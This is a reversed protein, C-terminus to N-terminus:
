ALQAAERTLGVPRRDVFCRPRGAHRAPPAMFRLGNIRMDSSRAAKAILRSVVMTLTARGDSTRWNCADVECSCHTTSAKLRNKAPATSAAPLRESRSPRLPISSAPKATNPKALRAPPSTPPVPSSMLARATIPRPAAMTNGEVRDSIVLTNVSRRSRARAMPNHPAMVPAAIARPGITPPHSSSSNSQRLMKMAMVGIAAM